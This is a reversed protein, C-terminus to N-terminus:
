NAINTKDILHYTGRLGALDRITGDMCRLILSSSLAVELTIITNFGDIHVIANELNKVIEKSKRKYIVEESALARMLALRQRASLLYHDGVFTSASKIKYGQNLLYFIDYGSRYLKDKSAEGFEQEDSEVYGRRISKSM